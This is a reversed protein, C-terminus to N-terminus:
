DKRMPQRLANVLADGAVPKTFCAHVKAILAPPFSYGSIVVVKTGGDALRLIVPTTLEDHLNLDMVAAEFELSRSLREARAVTPAVGAIVAGAIELTQRLALALHWSDEALLIRMGALPLPQPQSGVNM